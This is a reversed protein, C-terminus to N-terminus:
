VGVTNPEWIYKHLQLQFRVPVNEATIWEVIRRPEIAGFVPSMLLTCRGALGHKKIARVAWDFDERDGIVFKVEDRSNLREINSWDNQEAEGSSPCKLDMIRIVGEPLRDIPLTGSTECLVTHGRDLLAQALPACNPQLLPEGGTIEVLGVALDAVRVLIDSITMWTGEYFAQESDCYTCRLHCGTLRVFTCPEGARTSEGQISKYIENIRLREGM